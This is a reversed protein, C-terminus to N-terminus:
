SAKRNKPIRRSSIRTWYIRSYSSQFRHVFELAVQTKGIGGLGYLALRGHYRPTPDRLQNFLQNLFEDRGTFFPNREYPVMFCPHPLGLMIEIAFVVSKRVKLHIRILSAKLV